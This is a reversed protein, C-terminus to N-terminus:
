SCYEVKKACYEVKELKTWRRLMMDPTEDFNVDVAHAFHM